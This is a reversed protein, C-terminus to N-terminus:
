VPNRRKHSKKLVRMLITSLLVDKKYSSLGTDNQRGQRTKDPLRHTRQLPSWSAGSAGSSPTGTALIEENDDVLKKM